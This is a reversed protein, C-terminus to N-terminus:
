LNIIKNIINKRHEILLEKKLKKLEHINTYRYYNNYCRLSELKDLNIIEKLTTLQNNSCSLEVLNNLKEIGKLSTLNNYLM